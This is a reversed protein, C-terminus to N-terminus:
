ILNYNSDANDLKTNDNEQRELRVVEVRTGTFIIVQKVDRGAKSGTRLM